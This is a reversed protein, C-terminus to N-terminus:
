RIRFGDYGSSAVEDCKQRYAPMGGIYPMFVRPKGPINAGLYWSDCKVRLTKAAVDNVHDVWNDEAGSDAEIENAGQERLREICDSIWEVHQEITPLMNSLVSPSGPGTVIFLNPFGATALGLYTRPGGRWKDALLNGGRGRIDIRTLAGTMADFGTALVLADIKHVDGAVQVGDCTITEIPTTRVDVLRVNDRNFTQYYDTDLCLRKCGIVNDPCLLEAVSPDDVIERIKGRVFEQATRNSEENLTLDNYAGMFPIGGAQWRKEFERDREEASVGLASIDNPVFNFGGPTTKAQARLEPYNEKVERIEEAKLPKNQAPISYNPTRQFVIVQEANKAIEPISQIATSGTGIIGVQVGAFDVGEHPWRATHYVHGEFENLGPIDPVNAASLCGTAMVCYKARFQTDTDTQLDWISTAEDYHASLVRTGFIIDRRLDHRDAVHNLYNLIEPQGAYRETWNWEQQLAEDFEYSYFVSDVDCRAGPYRNWYWTGGVGSAEDVAKVNFGANRIRYILYLGAVGAGVVLVDLEEIQTKGSRM